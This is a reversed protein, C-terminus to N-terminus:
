GHDRIANSSFGERAEGRFVGSAVALVLSWGLCLISQLIDGVPKGSPRHRILFVAGGFFLIASALTLLTGLIRWITMGTHACTQRDRRRDFLLGVTSWFVVVGAFFLIQGAGIGFLTPPPRDIRYIPLTAECLGKRVAPANFGLYASTIRSVVPYEHKPLQQADVRAQWWSAPFAIGVMLIPLIIAFRLKPMANRPCGADQLKNYNRNGPPEHVELIGLLEKSNRISSQLSADPRAICRFM